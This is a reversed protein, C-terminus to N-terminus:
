WCTIANGVYTNEMTHLCLYLSRKHWAHSKTVLRNDLSTIEWNNTLNHSFKLGKPSIWFGFGRPKKGRLNLIIRWFNGGQIYRISAGNTFSFAHCLPTHFCFLSLYHDNILGIFDNVVWNKKKRGLMVEITSNSLRIEVLM